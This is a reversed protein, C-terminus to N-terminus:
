VAGTTEQPSRLSVSWLVGQMGEDRADGTPHYRMGDVLLLWGPTGLDPADRMLVYATFAPIPLGAGAAARQASEEAPLLVIPLEPSTTEVAELQGLRPEARHIIFGRKGYPMFLDRLLLDPLENQLDATGEGLHPTTM